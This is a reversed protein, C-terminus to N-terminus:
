GNLARFCGNDVRETAERELLRSPHSIIGSMQEDFKTESYGHDAARRCFVEQALWALFDKVHSKLRSLLMARNKVRVSFPVLHDSVQWRSSAVIRLVDECSM